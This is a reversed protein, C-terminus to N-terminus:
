DWICDQTKKITTDQSDRTSTVVNWTTPMGAAVHELDNWSDRSDNHGIWPEVTDSNAEHHDDAAEDDSEGLDVVDRRPLGPAQREDGDSINFEDEIAEVHGGFDARAQEMQKLTEQDEQARAAAEDKERAADVERVERERMKSAAVDARRRRLKDLEEQRLLTIYEHAEPTSLNEMPDSFLLLMNHHELSAVKRLTAEAMMEAAKAQVLAMKEGVKQLRQTEKAAKTSDPRVNFQISTTAEGAGGAASVSKQTHLESSQTGHNSSVSVRKLPPSQWLTSVGDAWRPFDKVLEWCHEYAFDSNKQTKNRYLERTM